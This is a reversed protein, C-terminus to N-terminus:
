VTRVEVPLGAAGHLEAVTTDGDGVVPRSNPDDREAYRITLEHVTYDQLPADSRVVVGHPLVRGDELGALLRRLAAVVRERGVSGFHYSGNTKGAFDKPEILM